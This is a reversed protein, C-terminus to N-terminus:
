WQVAINTLCFLFIHMTRSPSSRLSSNITIVKKYKLGSGRLLSFMLEALQNKDMSCFVGWAARCVEDEIREKNENRKTCGSKKQVGNCRYYYHTSGSSSKGSLGSMPEGCYGCFLKGSLYYDAKAAFKGARKRNAKLKERVAEFVDNPIM